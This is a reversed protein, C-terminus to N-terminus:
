RIKLKDSIMHRGQGDAPKMVFCGFPCLDSVQARIYGVTESSINLVTFRLSPDLDLLSRSRQYLYIKM